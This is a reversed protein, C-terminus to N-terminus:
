LSFSFTTMLLRRVYIKQEVDRPEWHLRVQITVESLHELVLIQPALPGLRM